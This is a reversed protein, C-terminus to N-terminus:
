VDSSRPFISSEAAHIWARMRAVGAPEGTGPEATGPEAVGAPEAAGPEGPAATGYGAQPALAGSVALSRAGAPPSPETSAPQPEPASAGFCVGRGRGLRGTMHGISGALLGM